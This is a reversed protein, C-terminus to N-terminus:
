TRVSLSPCTTIAMFSAMALFLISLARNTHLSLIKLLFSKQLVNELIDLKRLFFFFLVLTQQLLFARAKLTRNQHRVRLINGHARLRSQWLWTVSVLDHCLCVSALILGPTRPPPSAPWVDTHEGKGQALHLADQRKPLQKQPLTVFQESKFAMRRMSVLIILAKLLWLKILPSFKVV